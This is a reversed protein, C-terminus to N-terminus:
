LFHPSKGPFASDVGIYDSQATTVFFDQASELITSYLIGISLEGLIRMAYGQPVGVAPIVPSYLKVNRDM